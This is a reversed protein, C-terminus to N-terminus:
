VAVQIDKDLRERLLDKKVQARMACHCVLREDGAYGRIGTGDCTDCKPDALTLDCQGNSFKVVNKISNEM